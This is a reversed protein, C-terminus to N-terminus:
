QITSLFARMKERDLGIKISDGSKEIVVGDGAELKTLAALERLDKQTIETIYKINPDM